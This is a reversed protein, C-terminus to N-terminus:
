YTIRLNFQIIRSLGRQATNRGFNGSTPDTSPSTFNTHNTANLFDVQFRVRWTETVRMDKKVNVDWNRIGDARMEALTRPFVRLQYSSAQESSRGEFGVFDSPIAATGSAKYAIAPDWWVHINQSNVQDHKFADAIKSLDGYYFRNDWQLAPGSNRQYIWGLSWEGLLARAVGHNFHAKGKGFPFEYIGTWVFRHPMTNNNIEWSPAPDFPNAYWDQVDSAAYTYLGTMSFGHGFRKEVQIQLDNYNVGGYADMIDVGDRLGNFTGTMVPYPRVLTNAAVTSGTFRGQTRLYNYIAPSSTALSSFNSTNFPNTVNTTMAAEAAKARTNGSGFYTQPVYNVPQNVPIKSWSGNYSAEVVVSNTIQHQLGVRWRHQIAPRFNRPFNPNQDRAAFYVGNLSNGYPTDFRTTDARVPFPNVLPNNTASLASAPIPKNDAGCCFTLGNDNTLTTSTSQSFGAQSPRTNNANFTDAYMGYGARIVTRSTISYVAGVRPLLSKSGDTLTNPSNQGMYYGTGQVKISSLGAMPKAAYAAEVADSFPYRYTFNFGGGWARNYRETMGQEWEFRLGFNLRLKSTIRWDDQAWGSHFPVSWLANDNTDVTMSYPVGMMFAAWQLGVNSATTDNDAKRVFTRDFQFRGSTNGPGTTVTWYRREDWGFNMTHAGTIKTLAARLTGTSGRINIVPYQNGTQVGGGMPNINTAANSFDIRPMMHLDGAKADMYAPLGVDTPKYSIQLANENGENFRQYALTFNLVTSRNITWVYDGSGGKNIRVLGDSILGHKTEYTYDYEDALRHNWYWKASLKHNDGINYDIRNLISNFKENKPMNTAYFNNAGEPSVVGAVDNPKPYLDAYYKYMPNLIPIGKNGPFPDRVVHGSSDLHATRPDYIQYASGNPLALLDSFDGNRWAMKPVTVNISDTTETKNQYIGNYSFFFFLKNKGNFVWPIRVPGGVTAGFQNSRGPAQEPTGPAIRGSALGAKYALRTFHQTANWRQQWHQDYFSGHFENTGSKTVVNVTAGSTHGVSADFNATEMKFEAIADSPPVFGVRRGTGVVTAADIAYENQGVGGATNFASTGGNDFPRRYEPQGTWQMGAALGTLAFPNMDSYPLDIMQRTDIVRGGSATTTELMSAEASVNVVDTLNGISLQANMELRTGVSLEVPGLVSKKFGPAEVTVTYKGVDLLPVQYYGTENTITRSTSNTATNTIMISAGPVVGGQPDTVRGLITGRAEQGLAPLTMALLIAASVFLLVAKKSNGVTLVETTRYLWIIPFLPSYSVVIWTAEFAATGERLLDIGNYKV